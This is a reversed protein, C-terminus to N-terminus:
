RLARGEFRAQLHRGIVAISLVTLTIALGPFVALAWDRQAYDTAQSLMLGWDAAPPQTGLGLFSLSSGIIISQGINLTALVFLPPLVNPVIHRAIVSRRRLGLSTAANVYGAQRIVLTQARVVRACGPAIAVAVALAANREGTGFVAVVLLVMLTAPISMFIDAVRMTVEDGIRGSLGAILGWLLGASFGLATAGFGMFLSTRAGYIVRAFTDRGLQDTGFLHHAGPGQLAVAPNIVDPNAALVQPAVAAVCALLLFGSAIILGATRGAPRDARPRAGAIPPLEDALRVQPLATV